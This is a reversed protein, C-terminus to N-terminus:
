EKNKDYGNMYKSNAIAYRHTTHCIEGRVAKEVMLLM